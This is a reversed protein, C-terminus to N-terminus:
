ARRLSVLERLLCRENLDHWSSHAFSTLRPEHEHSDYTEARDRSADLVRDCPQSPKKPTIVLDLARVYCPNELLAVEEILVGHIERPCSSGSRGPEENGLMAFRDGPWPRTPSFRVPTRVYRELPGERM